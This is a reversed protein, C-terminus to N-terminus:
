PRAFIQRRVRQSRTKRHETWSVKVENVRAQQPDINSFSPTNANPNNQNSIPVDPTAAHFLLFAAFPYLLEPRLESRTYAPDNSWALSAVCFAGWALMPALVRWPPLRPRALGGRSAAWLLCAAALAMFGNRLAVSSTFPLVFLAAALFFAAARQATGGEAGM